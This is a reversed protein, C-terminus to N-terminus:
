RRDSWTTPGDGDTKQQLWRVVLWYALGIVALFVVVFLLAPGAIRLGRLGYVGVFPILVVVAVVVVWTRSPPDGADAWEDLDDWEDDDWGSM